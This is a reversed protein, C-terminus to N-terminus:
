NDTLNVEFGAGAVTADAYIQVPTRGPDIIHATVTITASEQMALNAVQVLLTTDTSQTNAATANASLEISEIQLDSSLTQTVTAGTSLVGSNQVTTVFTFTDNEGQQVTGAVSLEAHVIQMAPDGLLVSGYAQPAYLGYNLYSNKAYRVADGMRTLGRDQLGETFAVHMVQHEFLYGLGTSGWHAVSGGQELTLLTESISPSGVWAFQGDTCNGSIQIFPKDRNTFRGTDQQTLINESAWKTIFGHGLYHSILVGDNIASFMNDRLTTTDMNDLCLNTKAFDASYGNLHNDNYACFNGASDANDSVFLLNKMWAEASILNSEYTIIKDVMVRLEDVTNAPLRGVSITQQAGGDVTGYFHDSVLLGMSRDQGLMYTPVLSEEGDTWGAYCNSQCSLQRPNITAGGILTVYNPATAWTTAHLIYNRLASPLPLGYGYQNIVDAVDVVHTTLRSHDSRYDALRTAESALSNHTIALWEAGDVPDLNPANYPTIATPTLLTSTAVFEASDAVLGGVLHQQTAADFSGNTESAIPQLRNSINWFLLNSDPAFGGLAFTHNGAPAQFQLFNNDTKLLRKYQVTIRNILLRDTTSSQVAINVTNAGNNLASAPISQTLNTDLLGSWTHTTSTYNNFTTTVSHSRNDRNLVEVLYSAADAEPDPYPLNLSFDVPASQDIQQWYWTDFENPFTDWKSTYTLSFTNEPESTIEASVSKILGNDTVNAVTPIALRNGDAWLWYVNTKVYQREDRSENFRWGYFLIAEDPEFFADDDGLFQFALAEGRWMMEFTHPNVVDVAM